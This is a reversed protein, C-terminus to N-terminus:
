EWMSLNRQLWEALRQNYQRYYSALKQRTRAQLPPYSPRANLREIMQGITPSVYRGVRRLHLFRYRVGQNITQGLSPPSVTLDVGLFACMTEYVGAPSDRLDDFLLVLLQHSSYFNCIETLHDLYRGRGVYDFARARAHDSLKGALEDAVAQEFSRSEKGRGRKWWYQSYARDVPNRLIAILKAEPVTRAMREAIYPLGLYMPTAEGKAHERSNTFHSRYWDLGRDFERDFYHLEKKASIFIDPHESLYRSLTTTGSRAAGIILFTPLDGPPDDM